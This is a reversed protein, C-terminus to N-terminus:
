GDGTLEATTDATGSSAKEGRIRGGLIEDYPILVEVWTRDDALVHLDEAVERTVEVEILFRSLWVDERHVRLCREGACGVGRM